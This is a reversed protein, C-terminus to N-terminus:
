LYEEPLCPPFGSVAGTLKWDFSRLQPVRVKMQQRDQLPMLSKRCCSHVIIECVCLFLELNFAQLSLFSHFNIEKPEEQLAYLCGRNKETYEM